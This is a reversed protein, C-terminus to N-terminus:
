KSMKLRTGHHTGPSSGHCSALILPSTKTSLMLLLMRTLSEKFLLETEKASSELRLLKQQIQFATLAKDQGLEDPNYSNSYKYIRMELDTKLNEVAQSNLNKELFAGEGIFVGTQKLTRLWEDDIDIEDSKLSLYALRMQSIESSIDSDAVDYADQLSLTLEVDGIRETNNPFEILPVGSFLHLAPEGLQVASYNGEFPYVEKETYFEGGIKRSEDNQPQKTDQSRIEVWYRVGYLPEGTNTDYIIFCSWEQPYTAYVDNLGPPSALLIYGAGRGAAKQAIESIGTEFCMDNLMDALQEETNEDEEVVPVPKIGVMYSAKQMAVVRDFPTHLKHNEKASSASRRAFIPVGDAERPDSWEFASASQLMSRNNLGVMINNRVKHIEIGTTIAESIMGSEIAARLELQVQKNYIDEMYKIKNLQSM